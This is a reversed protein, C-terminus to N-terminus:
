SAREESLAKWLSRKSESLRIKGIVLEVFMHAITGAAPTPLRICDSL